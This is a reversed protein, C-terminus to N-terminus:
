ECLPVIQPLAEDAVKVSFISLVPRHDSPMVGKSDRVDFALSSRLKLATAARSFYIYDIRSKKTNGAANSSYSMNTGDAVAEAWSDYYSGKMKANERSGPWANFDGAIIRPESLTRQWAPFEGIQALRLESREASGPSSLQRVNSCHSGSSTTGRSL